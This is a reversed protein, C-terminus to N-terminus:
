WSNYYPQSVFRISYYGYLLWNIIRIFAILTTDSKIYDIGTDLQEHKGVFLSSLCTNLFM